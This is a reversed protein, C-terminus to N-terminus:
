GGMDAQFLTVGMELYKDHEDSPIPAGMALRIGSGELEAAVQRICDDLNRLPFEPHGEISFALDMPGFTVVSIGPKALTRINQVAEVSEVQIGLVVFGNWWDSYARRDVTPEFNRRLLGGWSRRGIPGYYAFAIADDVTEPEMVEPVLVASLGFDLFRGVKHADRTHPIRLQVDIGLEEAAACYAALREDSYPTHQSDIWVYDYRGTSWLGALEDKSTALSGRMAVLVEGDAIRQRLTKSEPM